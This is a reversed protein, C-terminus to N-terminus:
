RVLVGACCLLLVACCKCPFVVADVGDGKRGEKGGERGERRGEKGGERRGGEEKM